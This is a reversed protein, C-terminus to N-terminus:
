ITPNPWYVTFTSGKGIITKVTIYSNAEKLLLMTTSLGLGLGEKPAKTTFFPSFIRQLANPSIGEGSDIVEIKLYTGVPIPEGYPIKKETTLAVTSSKILLVGGKQKMAAIANSSLNFLIRHFAEAYGLIKVKDNEVETKIQINPPCSSKLLRVVEDLILNAIFEMPDENENSNITGLLKKVTKKGRLSAKLVEYIYSKAPEDDKLSELALECFGIQSGLINNFDHAIGGALSGLDEVRSANFLREKLANQEKQLLVKETIDESLGIIGNQEEQNFIPIYTNHYYREEHNEDIIKSDFEIFKGEEAQKEFDNEALVSQGIKNGSFAEDNKNQITYVGRNNKSSLTFPLPNILTHLYIEKELIVKKIEKIMNQQKIEELKAVKKIKEIKKRYQVEIDNSTLILIYDYSNEQLNNKIISLKFSIDNKLLIPFDKKETYPDINNLFSQIRKNLLSNNEVKLIQHVSKNAFLITGKKNIFLIGDSLNEVLHHFVYKLDGSWIFLSRFSFHLFVILFGISILTFSLFNTSTNHHIKPIIIDFLFGIFFSLFYIPIIRHFALAEDKRKIEYKKLLIFLFLYAIPLLFYLYLLIHATIIISFPGLLYLIKDTYLFHALFLLVSTAMGTNKWHKWFNISTEEFFQFVVQIMYYGIQVWFFAQLYFWFIQNSPSVFIHTLLALKVWAISVKTLNKLEQSAVTKKRKLRLHFLVAVLILFEIAYAYILLLNQKFLLVEMCESNIFFFVMLLM